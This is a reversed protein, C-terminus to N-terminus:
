KIIEVNKITATKNTDASVNNFTYLYIFSTDIGTVTIEGISSDKLPTKITVAGDSTAVITIDYTLTDEYFNVNTISPGFSSGYNHEVKDGWGSSNCLQFAHDGIVIAFKGDTMRNSFEVQMNITYSTSNTMLLKTAFMNISLRWNVEWGANTFTTTVENNSITTKNNLSYIDQLEEVDGNTVTLNSITASVGNTSIRVPLYSYFSKIPVIPERSNNDMYFSLPTTSNDVYWYYRGNKSELKYHHSATDDFSPFDLSNNWTGGNNIDDSEKSQTYSEIRDGTGNNYNYAIYFQNHFGGLSIMLKPFQVSKTYDSVDFEMVFSGALVKQKLDVGYAKTSDYRTEDGVGNVNMKSVPFTFSGDAKLIVGGKCTVVDNEKSSSESVVDLSFSDLTKGTDSKLYVYMTGVPADSKVTITENNIVVFNKYSEDVEIHVTKTSYSPALSYTFSRSETYVIEEQNPNTFRGADVSAESGWETNILNNIVETDYSVSYDTIYCAKQQSFFGPYNADNNTSVYKEHLGGISYYYNQGSRVLKFPIVLMDNEFTFKTDKYLNNVPPENRDTWGALFDLIYASGKDDSNNDTNRFAFWLAHDGNDKFAGVGVSESGQYAYINFTAELAYETASKKVVATHQDQGSFSIKGDSEINNGRYIEQNLFNETVTYSVVLTGLDKHNPWSYTVTANGVKAFNVEMLHDVTSSEKISSIVGDDGSIVYEIEEEFLEEGNKAVYLQTQSKKTEDLNLEVSDSTIFGTKSAIYFEYVNENITVECIDTKNSDVTTVSINVSGPKIATLLGENDVSATTIDSSEFTVEKNFANEPLVDVKLTHTQGVYLSLQKKEFSVSEVHIIEESSESDTGGIDGSSVESSSNDESHSSSTSPKSCSVLLLAFILVSFFNNMKRKM